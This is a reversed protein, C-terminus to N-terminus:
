SALSFVTQFDVYCNLLLRMGSDSSRGFGVSGALAFASVTVGFGVMACTAVDCSGSPM